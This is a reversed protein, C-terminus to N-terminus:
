GNWSRGHEAGPVTMRPVITQVDILQRREVPEGDKGLVARIFDDDDRRGVALHKTRPPSNKGSNVLTRRAPLVSPPLKRFIRLM